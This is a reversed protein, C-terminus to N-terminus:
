KSYRKSGNFVVQLNYLDPGLNNIDVNVTTGARLYLAPFVPITLQPSGYDVGLNNILRDAWFYGDSTHINFQLNYPPVELGDWLFNSDTQILITGKVTGGSAVVLGSANSPAIQLVYQFYEDRFGPPADPVIGNQSLTGYSNWTSLDSM